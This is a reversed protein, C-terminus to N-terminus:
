HPSLPVGANKLVGDFYPQTKQSIFDYVFSEGTYSKIHGCEFCILLDVTRDGHKASIAHRPSFCKARIGDRTMGDYFVRILKRKREGDLQLQGVIRYGRFTGPAKTDDPLENRPDISMMTLFPADELVQRSGGPFVRALQRASPMKQHTAEFRETSRLSNLYVAGVLIAVVGFLPLLLKKM